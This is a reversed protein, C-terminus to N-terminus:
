RPTESLITCPLTRTVGGVSHIRSVVLKALADLDPAQIQAIVDYPGTIGHVEQVGDLAAVTRAVHGTRGVETQILVYARLM